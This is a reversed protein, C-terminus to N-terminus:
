LNQSGPHQRPCRKYPEPKANTGSATLRIKPAATAGIPLAPLGQLGTAKWPRTTTRRNKIHAQTIAHVQGACATTVVPLSRGIRNFFDTQGFHEFVSPYFCRKQTSSRSIRTTFRRGLACIEIEPAFKEATSVSASKKLLIPWFCNNLDIHRACAFNAKHKVRTSGPGQLATCFPRM